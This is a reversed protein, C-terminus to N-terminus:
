KRLDILRAKDRVINASRGSELMTKLDALVLAFGETADLAAEAMKTASGTFGENVITVATGGRVAELDIKVTTGDTWKWSIAEGPKLAKAISDTEAGAAMFTWHVSKGVALPASSSKLWFASLKDPEVFSSFIEKASAKILLSVRARVRRSTAM